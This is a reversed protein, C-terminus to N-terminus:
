VLQFGAAFPQESDIWLTNFGTTWASGEISPIIADFDGVKTHAEVRGIFHSGIIIEHVFHDEVLNAPHLERRLKAEYEAIPHPTELQTSM